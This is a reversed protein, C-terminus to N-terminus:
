FAEPHILKALEKLGQAIRPGQRDLLNNDIEFVNGQQVATLDKYGNAEMIGAKVDNYKSVILMDPDQEVLRELSYGWGEVDSAVNEASTMEIMDNIFTDGGATFDGFEGYGVVYYVRPKPLNKTAEKVEDITKKMGGVLEAAEKNADLIKGLQSIVDYVGEFSDQPDLLVVEIGLNNLKNYVDESFHTSAIVFDPELEVIKEINPEQLSGISAVESVDQPYDCFDTRGVLYEEKNLAFITETISPAVSIVRAPKEEFTIENDYSDVLTLPYETGKVEKVQENDVPENTGCGVLVFGVLSLIIMMSIIKKNM